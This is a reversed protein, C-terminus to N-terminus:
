NGAKATLLGNDISAAGGTVEPTILIGGDTVDLTVGDLGLAVANTFRLSGASIDGGQSTDGTVQIHDTPGYGSGVNDQYNAEDFAM